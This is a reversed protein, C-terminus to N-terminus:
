LTEIRYFLPIGNNLDRHLPAAFVAPNRCYLLGRYVPIASGIYRIDRQSAYFPFYLCWYECVNLCKLLLIRFIM